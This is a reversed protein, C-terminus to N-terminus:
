AVASVNAVGVSIAASDDPTLTTAAGRGASASYGFSKQAGPYIIILNSGISQISAQISGQAGQGIAVLTIVSSIGIVIGLMTLTTRVKNATLASVTEHLIDSTTM